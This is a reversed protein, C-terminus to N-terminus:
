DLLTVVVPGDIKGFMPGHMPMLLLHDQPVM